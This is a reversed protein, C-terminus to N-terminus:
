VQMKGKADSVFQSIATESREIPPPVASIRAIASVLAEKMQQHEAQQDSGGRIMTTNIPELLQILVGAERKTGIEGIAKIAEVKLAVVPVEQIIKILTDRDRQQRIASIAQKATPLDNTFAIHQVAEADM